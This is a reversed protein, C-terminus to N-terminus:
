KDGRSRLVIFSLIKRLLRFSQLPFYLMTSKSMSLFYLDVKHSILFLRCIGSFSDAHKVNAIAVQQLIDLRSAISKRSINSSHIRYSSVINPHFLLANKALLRLYFERDEVTLTEDYLGFIEYATRKILLTPGVVSWRIVLESVIDSQLKKYNARYLSIMASSSIKNSYENIVIADGICALKSSDAELLEIRQKLGDKALVDDSACLTIYQGSSERILRNLTKCVGQNEQRFLKAKIQPHRQVWNEAIAYSNDTSGDDCMLVEINPYNLRPLANLCEEVYLAHNYVPILISVLPQM